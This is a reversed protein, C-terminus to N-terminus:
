MAGSDRNLVNDTTRISITEQISRTIADCPNSLVANWDVQHGTSWAHEALASLNFDAMKVVRTNMLMSVFGDDLRTLTFCLSALTIM